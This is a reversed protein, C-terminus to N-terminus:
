FFSCCIYVIFAGKKFKYGLIKYASNEVYSAKKLSYHNHQLSIYCFLKTNNM